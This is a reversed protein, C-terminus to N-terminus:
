HADARHRAQEGSSRAKNSIRRGGRASSARRRNASAASWSSRRPPLKDARAQESGLAERAKQLDDRVAALRTMVEQKFQEDVPARDLTLTQGDANIKQMALLENLRAELAQKEGRLKETRAQEEALAKQSQELGQRLADLEAAAEAKPQLEGVQARLRENDASLNKVAADAKENLTKLRRQLVEREQKLAAVADTQQTLQKAAEAVTALRRTFLPM